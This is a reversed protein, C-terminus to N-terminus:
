IQGLNLIEDMRFKMWESNWWSPIEDMRFKMPYDDCWKEFFHQFLRAQFIYLCGQKMLWLMQAKYPYVVSPICYMNYMYVIGMYSESATEARIDSMVCCLVVGGYRTKKLLCVAAFVQSRTEKEIDTGQHIHQTPTPPHRVAWGTTYTWQVPLMSILHNNASSSSSSYGDSSSQSRIWGRVAYVRKKMVLDSWLRWPLQLM